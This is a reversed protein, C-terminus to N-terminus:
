REFRLSNNLEAAAMRENSANVANKVSTLLRDIEAAANNWDTKAKGYATPADGEWEALKSSLSTNLDGISTNMHGVAFEIDQAAQWLAPFEVRINGHSM